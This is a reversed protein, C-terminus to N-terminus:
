FTTIGAGRSVPMLSGLMEIDFPGGIIEGDIARRLPDLFCEIVGVTMLRAEDLGLTRAIALLSADLVDIDSLLLFL